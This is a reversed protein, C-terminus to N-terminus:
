LMYHHVTAKVVCDRHEIHMGVGGGGGGDGGDGGGGGGGGGGAAAFTGKKLIEASAALHEAAQVHAHM